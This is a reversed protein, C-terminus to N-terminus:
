RYLRVAAVEQDADLQLYLRRGRYGYWQSCAGVRVRVTRSKDALTKFIM